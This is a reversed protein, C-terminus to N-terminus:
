ARDKSMCANGTELTLSLSASSSSLPQVCVRCTLIERSAEAPVAPREVLIEFTEQRAPPPGCRTGDVEFLTACRIWIRRISWAANM